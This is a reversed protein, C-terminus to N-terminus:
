NTVIVQAKSFIACVLAYFGFFATMAGIAALVWYVITAHEPSMPIEIIRRILILKLGREHTLAVNIMFWTGLGFMLVCLLMLWIKPKYPYAKLPQAMLINEVNLIMNYIM